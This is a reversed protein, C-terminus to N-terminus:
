CLMHRHDSLVATNLTKFACLAHRNGYKLACVCQTGTERVKGTKLRLSTLERAAHSTEQPDIRNTLERMKVFAMQGVCCHGFLTQFKIEIRLCVSVLVEEVTETGPLRGPRSLHGLPPGEVLKEPDVKELTRSRQFSKCCGGM